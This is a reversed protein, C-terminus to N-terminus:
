RVSLLGALSPFVTTSVGDPSPPKVVGERSPATIM